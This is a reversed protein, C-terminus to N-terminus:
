LAANFDMSQENVFPRQIESMLGVDHGVAQAQPSPGHPLDRLGASPVLAGAEEPPKDGRSQKM